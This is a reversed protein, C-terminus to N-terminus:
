ETAKIMAKITLVKTAPQTNAMVTVTKNVFGKKGESNFTVDITASEGPMIPKKPFSPITCGCSGTASTIVMEAGGVNKFKFSYSVKEGEVINGFDHTEQEFKFVPLKSNDGKGDATNPNNVIDTSVNDNGNSDKESGNKCGSILFGSIILVSFFVNRKM